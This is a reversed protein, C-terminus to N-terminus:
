TTIAQLEADTMQYNYIAVPGIYGQFNQAIYLIAGDGFLGDFAGSAPPLGDGTVKTNEPGWSNVRKRKGTRIDSLGIKEVVTTGDYARWSTSSSANCSSNGPAVANRNSGTPESQVECYITGVTFVINSATQYSLSDANRTITATTTVIPSTAVPGAENQV